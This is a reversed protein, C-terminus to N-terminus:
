RGIQRIDAVLKKRGHPQFHHQIIAMARHAEKAIAMSWRMTLPQIAKSGLLSGVRGTSSSESWWIAVRVALRVDAHLAQKIGLNRYRPLRLLEAPRYEVLKSM